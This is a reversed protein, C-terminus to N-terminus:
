GGATRAGISRFSLFTLFAAARTSMLKMGANAGRGVLDDKSFVM